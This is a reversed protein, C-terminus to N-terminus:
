KPQVSILVPFERKSDYRNLEPLYMESIFGDLYLAEACNFEEKFVMAFDYFNVPEKSIIFVINKSDIIGVGSRINKNSSNETFNFSVENQHVSLPGSQIAYMVKGKITEYDASNIIGTGTEWKNIYFIGNPKMYFNGAGERLNLPSITKKNEIYLGEPEFNTSFIGGNTAFLLEDSNQSMIKKLNNVTKILKGNKDKFHFNILSQSLDVTYTDFLQSRYNVQMANITLNETEKKDAPPYPIIMSDIVIITDIEPTLKSKLNDLNSTLLFISDNKQLIIKNNDSLIKEKTSLNKNAELLKQYISYSFIALGVIIISIVILYTNKIKKM